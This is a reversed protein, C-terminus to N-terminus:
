VQKVRLERHSPGAWGEVPSPVSQVTYTMPARGGGMEVTLTDSPRIEREAQDVTADWVASSASAVFLTAYRDPETIQTSTAGVSPVFEKGLGDVM